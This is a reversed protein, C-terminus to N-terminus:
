IIGGERIPEKGNVIMMTTMLEAMKLEYTERDIIGIQKRLKSIEQYIIKSQEQHTLLEGMINM